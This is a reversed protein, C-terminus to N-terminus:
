KTPELTRADSGLLRTLARFARGRHSLLQKEALSMEAFTRNNGGVPVFLCDYGFGGSGRPKEAIRGEVCGEAITPAGDPWAVVAITRFRATREPTAVGRLDVLLRAVNEAYSANPSAYRASHVGPAGGLADVELGTDDAVAPASAYQCVAQAKLLANGALDPADEIVDGLGDPRALLVATGALADAMESIKDPNASACVLEIM